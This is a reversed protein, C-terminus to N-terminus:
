QVWEIATALPFRRVEDVVRDRVLPVLDEVVWRREAATLAPDEDPGRVTIRIQLVMQAWIQIERGEPSRYVGYFEDSMM